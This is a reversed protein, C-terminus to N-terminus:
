ALCIVIASVNDAGEGRLALEILQHAVHEPADPSGLVRQMAEASVGGHLGDSCLLVRDGAELAQELIDPEAGKDVGLNHTLIHKLQSQEAQDLSMSGDDLFKQVLTHDRTLTRLRRDRLLYARSDGAHGIVVHTLRDVLCAVVTTGMGRLEVEAEAATYVAIAAADIARVLLERATFKQSGVHKRVFGLITERALRSAVEGAAAGGMGDLVAYLGLEPDVILMDQNNARVNGRHTEGRGLLQTKEIRLM